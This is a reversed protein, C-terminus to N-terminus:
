HSRFVGQTDVIVDVRNGLSVGGDEKRKAPAFEAKEEIGIEDGSGGLGEAGSGRGCNRRSAHLVMGHGGVDV